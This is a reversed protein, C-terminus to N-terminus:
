GSINLGGGVLERAVSVKNEQELKHFVEEWASLLEQLLRQIEQVKQSNKEVNAEVLHAYMFDYLRGLQEAWEGGEETRLAFRLERIAQQATKIEHNAEEHDKKEIAEVARQCAGIAIRYTILLLKEKPATLIEQMLYMNRIDKDNGAM